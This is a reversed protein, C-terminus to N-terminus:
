MAFGSKCSNYCLTLWWNNTIPVCLWYNVYCFCHMNLCVHKSACYRRYVFFNALLSINYHCILKNILVFFFCAELNTQKLRMFFSALIFSNYRHTMSLNALWYLLTNYFFHARFNITQSTETVTTHHGCTRMCMHMAIRQEFIHRHVTM